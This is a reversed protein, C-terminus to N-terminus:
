RVQCYRTAGFYVYRVRHNPLSVVLLRMEMAPNSESRMSNMVQGAKSQSERAASVRSRSGCDCDFSPEAGVLELAICM